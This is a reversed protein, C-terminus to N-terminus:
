RKIILVNFAEGPSFSVPNSATSVIQWRTGSYSVGFHSTYKSGAPLNQTVLLIASPDGNCLPHDITTASTTTNALTTVHVFAAPAAGGVRIGGERVDLASGPGGGASVTLAGQGPAVNAPSVSLPGLKVQPVPSSNLLASASIGAVADATGARVAYPVSVMQVRPTMPPDASVAVELWVTSNSRFVDEFTASTGPTPAGGGLSVNFRGEAVPVATFQESFFLTSPDAPADLYRVTLDIPGTLPKGDSGAVQGQWSVRSPVAAFASAACALVTVLTIFRM